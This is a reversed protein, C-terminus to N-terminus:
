LLFSLKAFLPLLPGPHPVHRYDQCQLELGAQVVALDYKFVLIFLILLILIKVILPLLPLFQDWLCKSSPAHNGPAAGWPAGLQSALHGLALSVTDTTDSGTVSDPSRAQLGVLRFKFVLCM